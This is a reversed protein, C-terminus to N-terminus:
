ENRKRMEEASLIYNYLSILFREDLDTYEKAPGHMLLWERVALLFFNQVPNEM